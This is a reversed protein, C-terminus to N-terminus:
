GSLDNLDFHKSSSMLKEIRSRALVGGSSNTSVVLSQADKKMEGLCHGYKELLHKVIGLAGWENYSVLAQYLYHEQKLNDIRHFYKFALENALARAFLCGARASQAIAKDFALQVEKTKKRNIVALREAQLVALVHPINVCGLGVLKKGKRIIFDAKKLYLRFKTEQFRGLYVLGDYLM